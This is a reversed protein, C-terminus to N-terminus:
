TSRWFPLLEYIEGQKIQRTFKNYCPNIHVTMKKNLHQLQYYLEGFFLFAFRIEIQKSLNINSYYIM